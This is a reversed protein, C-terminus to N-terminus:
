LKLALQAPDPSPKPGPKVGAYRLLDMAQQKARGPLVEWPILHRKPIKGTTQVLLGVPVPDGSLCWVSVLLSSAGEPSKEEV